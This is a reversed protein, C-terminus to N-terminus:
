SCHSIYLWNYRIIKKNIKELNSIKNKYFSLDNKFQPNNINSNIFSNDNTFSLEETSYKIRSNDCENLLGNFNIKLENKEKLLNEYKEKLTDNKTDIKEFVNRSRM